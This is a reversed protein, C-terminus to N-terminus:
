GELVPPGAYQSVLLNQDTERLAVGIADTETAIQELYRSIRERDM